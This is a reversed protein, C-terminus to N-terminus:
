SKMRKVNIACIGKDNESMEFTVKDDKIVRDLSDEYYFYIDKIGLTDPIIFGYGKKNDFFRIRGTLLTEM